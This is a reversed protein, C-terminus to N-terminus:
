LVTLFISAMSEFYKKSSQLINLKTIFNLHKHIGVFIIWKGLCHVLASRPILM